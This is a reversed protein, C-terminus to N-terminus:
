RLSGEIRRLIYRLMAVHKESDRAMTELVTPYLGEYVPPAQRGLHRLYRAGEQQDRILARLTAVMTPDADLAATAEVGGDQVHEVLLQLLTQHRHAGEAILDLLLGCAPDALRQQLARCEAQDHAEAAQHAELARILRDTPAPVETDHPAVTDHQAVLWTNLDSIHAIGTM